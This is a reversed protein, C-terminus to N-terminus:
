DKGFLEQADDIFSILVVISSGVLGVFFMVELAVMFFQFIHIMLFITAQNRGSPRRPAKPNHLCCLLNTLQAPNGGAASERSAKFEAQICRWDHLNHAAAIALAPKSSNGNGSAPGM